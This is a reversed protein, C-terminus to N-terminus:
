KAPNLKLAPKKPLDVDAPSDPLAEEVKRRTIEEIAKRNEVGILRDAFSRFDVSERISDFLPDKLWSSVQAEGFLASAQGMCVVSRGAENRQAYCISLRRYEEPKPDKKLLALYHPLAHEYDNRSFCIEGCRELARRNDDEVALVEAFRKLAADPNGKALQGEASMLLLEVNRPQDLLMREAMVLGSDTQGSKQLAMLLKMQLEPLFGESDLMRIYLPVAEAYRGNRDYIEALMKQAARNNPMMKLVQELRLGADADIGRRDFADATRMSQEVLAWQEMRQQIWEPTVAQDAVAVPESVEAVSGANEMRVANEAWKEKERESPESLGDLWWKLAFFGGALLVVILVARFLLMFVAKNSARNSNERRRAPTRHRSTRQIRNTDGGKSSGDLPVETNRSYFHNESDAGAFNPRSPSSSPTKKKRFLKM